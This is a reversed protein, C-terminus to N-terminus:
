YSVVSFFIHTGSNVYSVTPMDVYYNINEFAMSLQQFPLIMGKQSAANEPEHIANDHRLDVELSEVVISLSSEKIRVGNGTELRKLM